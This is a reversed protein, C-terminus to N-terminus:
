LKISENIKCIEYDEILMAIFNLMSMGSSASHVKLKKHTDIHLHFIKYENKKKSVEQM